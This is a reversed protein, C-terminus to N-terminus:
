NLMGADLPVDYSRVLPRCCDIWNRFEAKSAVCYGMAVWKDRKGAHVRSREAAKAQLARRVGWRWQSHLFM